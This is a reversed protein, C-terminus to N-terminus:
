KEAEREYVIRGDTMTLLIKGFVEEGDYPTNRGKSFFLNKDIRYSHKLDVLTFDSSYGPEIRGIKGLGFSEAPASSMLEVLRNLSLRKEQLVLKTYLIPFSTESSIIGNPAKELSLSKEAPTHPAHDSAIFDVTGDCLAQILAERDAASKLPPNMKWDAGKFDMDTLTLHHCSAECTLRAGKKKAQRIYDLSSAASVHCIHVRAKHKVALDCLLKVYDSEDENPIQNAYGLERAREGEFMFSGAPRLSLDECHFALIVDLNEARELAEELIKASQIGHGGDDSFFRIGEERFSKMDVIIEGKEAITLCAYPIAKVVAQRKLREFYGVATKPNDPYPYLNPMACVTTFGGAAAAKTGSVIDEKDTFGPDRLHVHVDVLGPLLVNGHCDIVRDCDDSIHEQVKLIEAESFLVEGPVLKEGTPLLANIMKIKM